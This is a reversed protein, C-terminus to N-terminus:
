PKWLYRRKIRSGRAYHPDHEPVPVEDIFEAGLREITRRSAVNDPDCTIILERALTRAFPALASCAQFAYRRGRYEAAVEFGVHGACLRVHDTDGVRLNIHGAAFGDKTRIRFHYSPVFGRAPEGDVVHVFQLTVDGFCLSPPTLLEPLM